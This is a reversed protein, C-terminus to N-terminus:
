ELEMENGHADKLVNLYILIFDLIASIGFGGLTFMKLIGLTRYGLYFRDLGFIGGFVSFMIAVSQSKIEDEMIAYKNSEYEDNLVLYIDTAWWILSFSAIIIGTIFLFDGTESEGMYNLYKLIVGWSILVIFSLALSFKAITTKAKNLYMTHMGFIGFFITLYALFINNRHIEGKLSRNNIDMIKNYSIRYIDTGWWVVAASFLTVGITLLSPDSVLYYYNYGTFSFIAAAILLAIKSLGQGIKGLYFQHIGILGFLLALFLAVIHNRRESERKEEREKKRKRYKELEEQRSKISAERESNKNIEIEEDIEFLKNLYERM